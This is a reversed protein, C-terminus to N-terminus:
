SSLFTPTSVSRHLFHIFNIKFNGLKCIRRSKPKICFSIHDIIEENKCNTVTSFLSKLVFDKIHFFYQLIYNYM